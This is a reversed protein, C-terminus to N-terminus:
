ATELFVRAATEDNSVLVRGQRNVATNEFLKNSGDRPSVIAVKFAPGWAEGFRKGLNFRDLSPVDGALGRIDILVRTRGRRECEGRLNGILDFLRAYDYVGTLAVAIWGEAEAIEVGAGM